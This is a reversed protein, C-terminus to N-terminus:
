TSVTSIINYPYNSDKMYVSIPWNQFDDNNTINFYGSLTLTYNSQVALVEQSILLFAETGAEINIFNLHALYDGETGFNLTFKGKNQTPFVSWRTGDKNM